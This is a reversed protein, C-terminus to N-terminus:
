IINSTNIFKGFDSKVGQLEQNIKEKDAISQEVFEM